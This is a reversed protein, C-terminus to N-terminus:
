LDRRLVFIRKLRLFLGVGRAAPPAHALYNDDSKASLLWTEEIRGTKPHKDLPHPIIEPNQAARRAPQAQNKEIARPRRPGPRGATVKQTFL